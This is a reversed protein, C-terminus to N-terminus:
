ALLAMIEAVVEEVPKTADVAATLKPFTGVLGEKAAALIELRAKIAEETDEPRQELAALKEEDIVM